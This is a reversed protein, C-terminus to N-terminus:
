SRGRPAGLPAASELAVINELDVLAEDIMRQRDGDTMTALVTKEAIRLVQESIAKQLREQARLAEQTVIEKVDDRLRAAYARGGEIIRDRALVGDEKVRTFLQMAEREVAALKNRTTEYDGRAAAFAADNTEIVQKIAQHRSAFSKTLPGRTFYVLLAVFAAFDILFWGIPPAELDRHWWNLHPEGGHASAALAVVPVVIALVVIVLALAFGNNRRM